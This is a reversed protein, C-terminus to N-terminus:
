PVPWTCCEVARRQAQVADGPLDAPASRNAGYKTVALGHTQRPLSLGIRDDDMADEPQLPQLRAEVLAAIHVAEAAEDVDVAEAVFLGQATGFRAAADMDRGFVQDRKKVEHGVVRQNPDSLASAEGGLIATQMM